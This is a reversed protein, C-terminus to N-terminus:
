IPGLIGGTGPFIAFCIQYPLMMSMVSNNGLCSLEGDGSSLDVVCELGLHRVMQLMM